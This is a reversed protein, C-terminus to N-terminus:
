SFLFHSYNCLLGKTQLFLKLQLIYWFIIQRFGDLPPSMLMGSCVSWEAFGIKGKTFSQQGKHGAPSAGVHRVLVTSPLFWSPRSKVASLSLNWRKCTLWKMEVFARLSTLEDCTIGGSGGWGVVGLINTPVWRVSQSACDNTMRNNM